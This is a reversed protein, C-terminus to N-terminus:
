AEQGRSRRAFGYASWVGAALPVALLAGLIGALVTGATMVLLIAVAHLRIARGVVNPYLLDGELQQIVTIAVVVLAAALAGESILAVLAAVAGALVAGILPIFAGLFVLVMLPLVLPVGILALAIGILVADVVAIIAVGRMYGSASKWAARGAGDVLERHRAPALSVIWSWIRPGDHVLFFALVLVLLIGTVIEALLTAGTVVGRGISDANDRVGAVADDVAEQLEARELGLPGESAWKVVEEVGDDVARGLEDLQDVFAPGILFSIGTLAAAGALMVALTAIVSPWGRRRLWEVPPALLTAVLLAVLLPVVVLRLQVVLWAVVAVAGAILIVNLAIRSLPWLPPGNM